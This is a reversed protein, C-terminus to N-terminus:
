FSKTNEKQASKSNASCFNDSFISFINNNNKTRTKRKLKRVLTAWATVRFSDSFKTCLCM